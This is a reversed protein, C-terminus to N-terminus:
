VIDKLLEPHKALLLDYIKSASLFFDVCVRHAARLRTGRGFAAKAAPCRLAAMKAANAPLIGASCGFRQGHM